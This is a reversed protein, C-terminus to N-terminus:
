LGAREILSNVVKEARFVDHALARAAECHAKYNRCIDDIAGVAEAVTGFSLLGRGTDLWEEYGTSQLAVPRGSTLYSASRDSFWGSNTKVYGNKAISWEATSEQIYRRYHDISDSISRANRVLWGKAELDSVPPNGAMALEISCAVRGPLDIFKIFEENKLGYTEGDHEVPDYSQWKLVTTFSGTDGPGPVVPWLETVIPQCTPLWDFGGTPISCGPKGINYGFSFHHTHRELHDIDKQNGEAVRMQIYGPDTDVYLRCPVELYDERLIGAGTVNIFLDATRVFDRLDHGTLGHAHGEHDIFTWNDALGHASMVERLYGVPLEVDDTMSDTNPDYNWAGTDELYLVEHGLQRLGLLYQLYHLTLGAMPISGILGTCIVRLGAM